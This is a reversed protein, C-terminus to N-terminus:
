VARAAREGGGVDGALMSRVTRMDAYCERLLRRLEWNEAEAATSAAAATARACDDRPAAVTTVNAAAMRLLAPLVGVEGVEPVDVDEAAAAALAGEM